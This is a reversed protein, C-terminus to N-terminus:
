ASAILLIDTCYQLHYSSSTKVRITHKKIWLYIISSGRASTPLIYFCLVWFDVLKTWLMYYTGLLHKVLWSYINIWLSIVYLHSGWLISLCHSCKLLDQFISSSRLPYIQFVLSLLSLLPLLLCKQLLTFSWLMEVHAYFLVYLVVSHSMRWSHHWQRGSPLNTSVIDSIFEFSYFSKSWLKLLSSENYRYSLVFVKVALDENKGIWHHDYHIKCRVGAQPNLLWSTPCTVSLTPSDRFVQWTQTTRNEEPPSGNGQSM